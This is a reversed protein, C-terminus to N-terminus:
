GDEMPLDAGYSLEDSVFENGLEHYRVPIKQPEVGLDPWRGPERFDARQEVVFESLQFYRSSSGSCQSVAYRRM